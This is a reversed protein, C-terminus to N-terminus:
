PLLQVFTWISVHCNALLTGDIRRYGSTESLIIELYWLTKATNTKSESNLYYITEIYLWKILIVLKTITLTSINDNLQYLIFNTWEIDFWFKLVFFWWSIAGDIKFISFIYLIIKSKEFITAALESSSLKWTFSSKRIEWKKNSCRSFLLWEFFTTEKHRTNVSNQPIKLTHCM